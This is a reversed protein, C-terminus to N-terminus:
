SNITLSPELQAALVSVNTVSPSILQAQGTLAVKAIAEPAVSEVIQEEPFTFNNNVISFVNM